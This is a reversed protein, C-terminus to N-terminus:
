AKVAKKPRVTDGDPTVQEVICQDYFYCALRFSITLPFALLALATALVKGITLLLSDSEKIIIYREKFSEWTTPTSVETIEPAKKPKKKARVKPRVPPDVEPPTPPRSSPTARPTMGEGTPNWLDDWNEEVVPSNHPVPPTSGRIYPGFLDDEAREIREEVPAAIKPRPLPLSQDDRGLTFVPMERLGTSAFRALFFDRIALLSTNNFERPNFHLMGAMGPIRVSFPAGSFVFGQMFARTTGASGAMLQLQPSKPMEPASFTVRSLPHFLAGKERSWLAMEDVTSSGHKRIALDYVEDAVVYNSGSFVIEEELEALVEEDFVAQEQNEEMPAFRNLLQRLGDVDKKDTLARVQSYFEVLVRPYSAIIRHLDRNEETITFLNTYETDAFRFTLEEILKKCTGIFGSPGGDEEPGDALFMEYESDDEVEVVKTSQGLRVRDKELESEQVERFCEGFNAVLSGSTPDIFKGLYTEFAGFARMEYSVILRTFIGVVALPYYEISANLSATLGSTFFLMGKYRDDNSVLAQLKMYENEAERMLRSLIPKAEATELYEEYALGFGRKFCGQKLDIYRDVLPQVQATNGKKARLISELIDQAVQTQAIMQRLLKPSPSASFIKAYSPEDAFLACLEGYAESIEEPLDLEDEEEEAVEGMLRQAFVKVLAIISSQNNTSIALAEEGDELAIVRNGVYELFKEESGVNGDDGWGKILGVIAGVATEVHEPSYFMSSGDRSLVGKWGPLVGLSPAPTHLCADLFRRAGERMEAENTFRSRFRKIGAVLSAMTHFDVKKALPLDKQTNNIRAQVQALKDEVFCLRSHGSENVVEVLVLETLKKIKTFDKSAVAEDMAKSFKSLFKMAAQPYAEISQMLEQNDRSFFNNLLERKKFPWSREFKFAILDLLQLARNGYQQKRDQGLKKKTSEDIRAIQDAIQKELLGKERKAILVPKFVESESDVYSPLVAALDDRQIAALLEKLVEETALPYEGIQELIWANDSAFFPMKNYRDDEAISDCVQALLSRANLGKEEKVEDSAVDPAMEAVAEFEGLRDRLGKIDRDLQEINRDEQEKGTTLVLLDKLGASSRDAFPNGNLEIRRVAPPQNGRDDAADPLDEEDTEEGALRSGLKVAQEALKFAADVPPVRRALAIAGDIPTVRQAVRYAFTTVQVATRWAGLASFISPKSSEAVPVLALRDDARESSDVPRTPDLNDM